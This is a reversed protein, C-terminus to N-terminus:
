LPEPELARGTRAASGHRIGPIPLLTNWSAVNASLYLAVERDFHRNSDPVDGSSLESPYLMPRM